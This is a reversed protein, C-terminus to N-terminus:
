RDYNYVRVIYLTVIHVSVWDPLPGVMMEDCSLGINNFGLLLASTGRDYLAGYRNQSYSFMRQTAGWQLWWDDHIRTYQCRAIHYTTCDLPWRSSIPNTQIFVTTIESLMEVSLSRNNLNSYTSDNNSETAQSRQKLLVNHRPTKQITRSM